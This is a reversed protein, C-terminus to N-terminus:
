DGAMSFAAKRLPLREPRISFATKCRRARRLLIMNRFNQLFGELFNSRTMDKPKAFLWGKFLFPRCRAPEANKRNNSPGIRTTMGDLMLLGPISFNLFNLIGVSLTFAVAVPVYVSGLM